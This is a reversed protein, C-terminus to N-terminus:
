QSDVKIEETKILISNKEDLNLEILKDNVDIDMFYNMKKEDIVHALLM